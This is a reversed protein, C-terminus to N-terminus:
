SSAHDIAESLELWLHEQENLQQRLTESESMAQLLVNKNEPLYLNQDHLRDQVQQYRAQLKEMEREVHHLKQRLPRLQQRQEAEQRKQDKRQASSKPRDNSAEEASGQRLRAAYDVLDGDFPLCQQQEVLWLTDCCSSLLSRDHSILVLAGSFEQLALALSLRMEIDLHNTPEDLLLVHPQEWACLALALRAREGGSFRKCTELVREGTFGFRGLFLRLELDTKKTARRQLCLLPTDDDAFAELQHQHYYAIRIDPALTRTGAEPLLTGALVKLLTSKGAGNHGLIGIRDGPNLQLDIAHLIKRSAYGIDVRDLNVLPVPMREPALFQFRFPSEEQLPAIEELRELRKIRSQAQRAKTAQARFRNIFSELHAREVAVQQRQQERQLRHEARSREMSSYNGTYLTLTEHEIAIIHDCVGDLFDRDHAILLLLGPYSKLWQELWLLADLDLHNTPEDLLLIDSRCMLARALGLRIRWGGSFARIPLALQDQRFGLGAMLTAARAPTSFGDLAAFDAHAQALESLIEPNQSQAQEEAQDIRSQLERFETDGDLVFDLASQDTAPIEQNMSAFRWSAPFRVDGHDLQHSGLLVAMLSSKGAGNAGCLGVHWGPFLRVDASQFLCRTGRRLTAQKLELMFSHVHESAHLHTVYWLPVYIEAQSM